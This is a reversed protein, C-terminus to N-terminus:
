VQLEPIAAIAEETDLTFPIDKPGKFTVDGHSAVVIVTLEDLHEAVPQGDVIYQSPEYCPSGLAILTCTPRTPSM